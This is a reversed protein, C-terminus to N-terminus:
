GLKVFAIQLEACILAVVSAERSIAFFQMLEGFNPDMYGYILLLVLIRLDSKIRRNFSEKSRTELRSSNGKFVISDVCFFFM